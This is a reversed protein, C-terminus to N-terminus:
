NRKIIWLAVEQTALGAYGFNLYFRIFLSLIERREDRARLGAKEGRM